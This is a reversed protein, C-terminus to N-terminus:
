RRPVDLDANLYVNTNAVNTRTINTSQIAGSIRETIRITVMNQRLGLEEADRDLSEFAREFVTGRLRMGEQLGGEEQLKIEEEVEPPEETRNQDCDAQLRARKEIQEKLKQIEDPKTPLIWTYERCVPCKRNQEGVGRVKRICAEDFSHGCTLTAVKRMTDRLCIPCKRDADEFEQVVQSSNTDRIPLMSSM